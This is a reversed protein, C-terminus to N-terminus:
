SRIKPRHGPERGTRPTDWRRSGCHPCVSPRNTRPTWLWGCRLCITKAPTLGLMTKLLSAYKKSELSDTESLIKSFEKRLVPTKGKVNYLNPLYHTHHLSSDPDIEDLFKQVIEVLVVDGGDFVLEGEDDYNLLDEVYDDDYTKEYSFAAMIILKKIEEGTLLM